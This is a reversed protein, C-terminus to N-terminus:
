SVLVQFMFFRSMLSLELGTRQPIGEFQALLRLIIPLLMMLVALLVPPLIGQSSILALVRLTPHSERCHYRRRRIATQLDM